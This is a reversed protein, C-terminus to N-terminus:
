RKSLRLKLQTMALWSAQVEGGGEYLSYQESRITCIFGREEVWYAINHRINCYFTFFTYTPQVRWKMVNNHLEPRPLRTQLNARLSANHKVLNGPRKIAFLFLCLFPVHIKPEQIAYVNSFPKITLNTLNSSSQLFNDVVQQWPLIRGSSIWVCM